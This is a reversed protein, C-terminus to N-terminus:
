CMLQIKQSSSRRLTWSIVKRRVITILGLLTMMKEGRFLMKNEEKELYVACICCILADM